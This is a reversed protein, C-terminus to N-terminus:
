LLNAPPFPSFFLSRSFLIIFLLSFDPFNSSIRDPVIFFFSASYSFSSLFFSIFTLSLAKKKTEKKKQKKKPPFKLRFPLLFFNTAFVIFFLFCVQLLYFLRSYVLLSSNNTESFLHFFFFVFCVSASLHLFFM